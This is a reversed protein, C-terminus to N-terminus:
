KIDCASNKILGEKQKRNLTKIHWEFKCAASRTEFQQQYELTVPRRARTYKAGLKNDGNHEDIRREVDNTMGAYLTDDNCRVIYVYWANM